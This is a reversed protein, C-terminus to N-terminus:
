GRRRGSKKFAAELKRLAAHSHPSATKIYFRQTTAVNAHRLVEQIDKDPTGLDHLITGVGRRFAHWGQWELGAKKLAPMIDRRATNAIVLPQGTAGAFIYGKATTRKKHELLAKRLFPVCPVAATSGETKTEDVHARWVSRRVYLLDGTFDDWMLGRIECGRLGTLAAVLVVTRSPEPLVAVMRTVEDLTYAYQNVPRQGKPTKAYRVPNERIALADTRIAYRFAGSLLNRCNALTTRALTKGDAVARLIREVDSTRVDRLALGNVHPELLKWTVRYSHSTSPRLEAKCYPLYNHEVFAALSQSTEPIAAKANIPALILDAEAQVSEPTRHDRDYTGIKKSTQKMVVRGNVLVPERYRLLWCNGRREIRGQQM